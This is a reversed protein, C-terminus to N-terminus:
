FLLVVHSFNCDEVTFFDFILGANGACFAVLAYRFLVTGKSLIFIVINLQDGHGVATVTGAQGYRLHFHKVLRGLIQASGNFGQVETGTHFRGHFHSLTRDIKIVELHCQFFVHANLNHKLFLVNDEFTKLVPAMSREAARMTRLMDRYRSKTERLQRKSTARYTRNEYLELEEEWEEFLDESVKEVKDIRDSVEESAKECNLYEGNLKDYAVKLDTEKLTVVSAFQDLASKFEEQAEEQADRAEEVRDVMIDRKHVGVKEMASYYATSCGTLLLVICLLTFINQKLAPM